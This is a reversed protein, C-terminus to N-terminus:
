LAQTMIDFRSRAFELRKTGLIMVKGSNFINFTVDSGPDRYILGPFQEPQYDTNELGLRRSAKELDIRDEFDALIVSTNHEFRYENIEVGLSRLKEVFDDAANYLEDIDRPGRVQFSGSTFVTHAPGDESFRVTVMSHSSFNSSFEVGCSRGLDEIVNELDLERDISGSGMTSVIKM